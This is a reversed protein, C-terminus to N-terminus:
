GWKFTGEIQVSSKFEKGSCVSYLHYPFVTNSANFQVNFIIQPLTMHDHGRLFGTGTHFGLTNRTLQDVIKYNM